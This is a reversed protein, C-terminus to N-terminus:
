KFKESKILEEISTTKQISKDFTYRVTVTNQEFEKQGIILMIPTKMLTVKRIKYNLTENDIELSTRINEKKLTTQINKAYEKLSDNLTLIAVQVPAIWLPLKGSYHELLIGIFREISGFIARHLIVPRNKCNDITIYNADLRQPLNFDVQLTALQWDRGISDKLVFELKPGYFAGEGKNISYDLQLKQISSLLSQEAKDWIEDSGVRIDPRDSFKVKINDFGFDKYIEFILQCIRTSEELIQEETCFIHADDQTFARTRMLGHISGSSEFRHVKGFESIRIPLDNYSIVRNMYHKYVQICGPCNMPKIAYIKDNEVTQTTFMNHGFKEWHGSKEWLSIDVIEPTNIEIYMNEENKKRMYDILKLYLQWGNPHWFIAGQAEEQFHFLLMDHGIKRHDRKEVEKLYNLYESLKEQTSWATGYIRSLMKNKSDGRWYAGAFKLLKFHKHHKTNNSHPGKCLDIFEGHIYLSIEQDKDIAEILEVKLNENISKFYQIAEDRSVVKRIFPENKDIIEHMKSEIEAFNDLTLHPHIDIDYYFGNEITPGIAIQSDPYLEKISRAFIHAIDHRIIDLGEEDNITIIKISSDKEIKFTIDRLEANVYAAIASESDIEKNLSLLEKVTIGKKYEKIINNPLTIQIM